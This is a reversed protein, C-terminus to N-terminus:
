RTYKKAHFERNRYMELVKGHLYIPAGPKERRYLTEPIRNTYVLKRLTSDHVGLEAAAEEPLSPWRGRKQLAAEGRLLREKLQRVESILDYDSHPM